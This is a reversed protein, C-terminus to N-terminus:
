LSDYITANSTAHLEKYCAEMEHAREFRQWHVKLKRQTRFICSMNSWGSLILAPIGLADASVRVVKWFWIISRSTAVFVSSWDKM